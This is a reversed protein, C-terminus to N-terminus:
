GTIHRKSARHKLGSGAEVDLSFPITQAASHIHRPELRGSKFERIVRPKRSLLIFIVRMKIAILSRDTPSLRRLTGRRGRCPRHLSRGLRRKNLRNLM